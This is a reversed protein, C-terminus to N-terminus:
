DAEGTSGAPPQPTFRVFFVTGTPGTEFSIRGGYRGAISYCTALGLGTGKEKTTFFPLGIKDAMEPPIGKGEDRVSLVADPGDMYSRVTLRGGEPMAEFGNRVLNLVIQDMERENSGIVAVPGPELIVEHDSRVADALILPQLKRLLSDLLIPEPETKRDRALSLFESIIANARDLEDIMLEFYSRYGALEAEAELLQLFGRTTTLPNRVEHGIAAAMQGVLNLRELRHIEREYQKLETTDVIVSLVREEGNVWIIERSLLGQKIEGSKTRYDIELNRVRGQRFLGSLSQEYRKPCTPIGIELPTRGVAEERTYGTSRIWAENVDIYRHESSTTIYMLCPNSRFISVFGESLRRFQKEARRRETLDRVISMVMTEGGLDFAYTSYESPLRRGDKTVMEMEFRAHGQERFDRRIEAIREIEEPPNIDWPTMQLLEERSYGLLACAARNVELFHEQTGQDIFKFMFMADNANDFVARYKEQRERLEQELRKMETIDHTTYLIRRVKGGISVPTMIVDLVRRGTPFDREAVYHLPEANEACRRLNVELLRGGTEGMYEAPTKGVAAVNYYGSMREAAANAWRRRFTGDEGIEVLFIPTQAVNLLMDFEGLRAQYVEGRPKRGPRSRCAVLVGSGGAWPIISAKIEVPWSERSKARVLLAATLNGEVRLEQLLDPWNTVGAQELLAVPNCRTIEDRDYGLYRCVAENAEAVRVPLGGADLEFLIVGVDAEDLLAQLLVATETAVRKKKWRRKRVAASNLQRRNEGNEGKGSNSRSM